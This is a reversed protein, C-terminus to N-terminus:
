AAPCAAARGIALNRGAIMTMANGKQVAVAVAGRLEQSVVEHPWLTNHDVLLYSRMWYNLLHLDLGVQQSWLLHYSSLKMSSLQPSTSTLRSRRVRNPWRWSHPLLVPYM